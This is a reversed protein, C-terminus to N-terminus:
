QHHIPNDVPLSQVTHTHGSQAGVTVSQSNGDTAGTIVLAIDADTGSTNLRDAAVITVALEGANNATLSAPTGDQTYNVTVPYTGNFSLAVSADAGSLDSACEATTAAAFSITSGDVTISISNENYCTNGDTERLTLTYTGPVVWEIDISAGGTGSMNYETGDAGEAISWLYTNGNDAVNYNATSGAVVGTHNGQTGTQAFTDATLSILAIVALLTFANKFTKMVTYNLNFM